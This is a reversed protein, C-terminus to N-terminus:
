SYIMASIEKPVMMRVKKTKLMNKCNQKPKMWKEIVLTVKIKQEDNQIRVERIKINSIWNSVRQNISNKIKKIIIM